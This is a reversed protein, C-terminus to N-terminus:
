QVKYSKDQIQSVRPTVQHRLQEVYQGSFRFTAPEIGPPTIPIKWQSLRQGQTRSLRFCFHTDRPPPPHPPSVVKAGEHASQRSITPAVVEQGPTHTPTVKGSYYFTFVDEIRPEWLVTKRIWTEQTTSNHGLSTPARGLLRNRTHLNATLKKPENASYRFALRLQTMDTLGCPVTQSGSSLNEHFKINSSKKKRFDTSFICTENVDSLLLPYTVHLSKSM